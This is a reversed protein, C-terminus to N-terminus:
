INQIKIIITESAIHLVPLTLPANPLSVHYKERVAGAEDVAQTGM